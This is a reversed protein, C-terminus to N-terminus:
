KYLKFGKTYGMGIYEQLKDLHIRTRHSGNTVCVMGKIAKGGLSANKVFNEPNHIGIGSAKQKAGGVKGGSSALAMRGEQSFTGVKNKKQTAAAKKNKQIQLTKNSKFEESFIGINNQFCFEGVIKRQNSTLNAGLMKMARLDNPRKYIKWLLYHAIIHERVTLYTFNFDDDTGGAHVPVIHHRHLNSGKGWSEKLQKKSNCLNYYISLYM